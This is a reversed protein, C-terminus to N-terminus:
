ASANKNNNTTSSLPNSAKNESPDQAGACGGERVDGGVVKVGDKDPEQRFFSFFICFFCSCFLTSSLSSSAFESTWLGISWRSQHCIAHKLIFRDM